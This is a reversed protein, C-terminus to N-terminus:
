QRRDTRRKTFSANSLGPSSCILVPILSHFSSLTLPFSPVQAGAGCLIDFTPVSSDLKKHTQDALTVPIRSLSKMSRDRM